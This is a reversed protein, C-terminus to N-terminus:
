KPAQQLWGELLPSAQQLLLFAALALAVASTSRTAEPDSEVVPAAGDFMRQRQFGSRPWSASVQLASQAVDIVEWV